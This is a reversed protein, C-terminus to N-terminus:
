SVTTKGSAVAKKLALVRASRCCPGEVGAAEVLIQVM